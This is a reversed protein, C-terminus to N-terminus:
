VTAARATRRRTMAGVGAVGVLMLAWAAPEPVATSLVYSGTSPAPGNTFTEVFNGSQGSTTFAIVDSFSFKFNYPAPVTFKYNITENPALATTGSITGGLVPTLVVTAAQATGGMVTALLGPVLLQRVLKLKRM